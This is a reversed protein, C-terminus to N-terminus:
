HNSLSQNPVAYFILSQSEISEQLGKDNREIDVFLFIFGLFGVSALQLRKKNTPSIRPTRSLLVRKPVWRFCISLRAHNGM